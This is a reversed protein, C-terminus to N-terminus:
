REKRGIMLFISGTNRLVVALLRNLLAYSLLKVLQRKFTSRIRDPNELLDVIYHTHPTAFVAIGERKLRRVLFSYIPFTGVGYHTSLKRVDVVWWKGIAPPLPSIGFIHYHPDSLFLQPSLRNPGNIAVVGGPKLVRAIERISKEHSEVHEIVSWFFVVDFTEDEFPLAEAVGQRFSVPVNRCEAWKRALLIRQPEAELGHVNAAGALATAICLGGNGSGIDLVTKGPLSCNLESLLKVLSQGREIGSLEFELSLRKREVTADFDDPILNKWFDLLPRDVDAIKSPQLGSNM